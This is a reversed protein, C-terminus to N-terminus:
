TKNFFCRKQEIESSTHKNIQLQASMLATVRSWLLYIVMPKPIKGSM